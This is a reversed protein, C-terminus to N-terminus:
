AAKEMMNWDTFTPHLLWARGARVIVAGQVMKPRTSDREMSYQIREPDACIGSDIALYRGSDSTTCGWLHGHGAIVNMEFKAALRAPIFSGHISINKPHTIRWPIGASTLICHYYPSFTVNDNMTFLRAIRQYSVKRELMRLIRDDHNGRIVKVTEFNCCIDDLIAEGVALEQEMEETEDAGWISFAAMDFLDGPVICNAIGWKLALGICRNMFDADHYPVHPDAMILADGVVNIPDNYKPKPSVGIRQFQAPPQIPWKGAEKLNTIERQASKRYGSSVINLDKQIKDWSEGQEHRWISELREGDTM